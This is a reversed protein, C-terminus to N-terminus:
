KIVIKILRYFLDIELKDYLGKCYLNLCKVCRNWFPIYPLPITRATSQMEARNRWYDVNANVYFIRWFYEVEMLIIIIYLLIFGKPPRIITFTIPLPKAKAYLNGFFFSMTLTFIYVHVYLKWFFFLSNM